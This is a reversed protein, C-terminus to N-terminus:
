NFAILVIVPYFAVFFISIPICSDSKQSFINRAWLMLGKRVQQKEM